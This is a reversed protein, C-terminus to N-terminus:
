DTGGSANIKKIFKGLTPNREIHRLEDYRNGSIYEEHPGLLMRREFIDNGQKDVTQKVYMRGIIDVVGLLVNLPRPSLSPHRLVTTSGDDEETEKEREQATFIIYYSPGTESSALNAFRTVFEGILTGMRGWTRQDPTKPERTFDRDDQEKLVFRMCIEALSTVSDIVFVEYPHDGSRAMWYIPDVDEWRRVRYVDVRDGFRRISARGRESLILLTRLESDCSFRTKGVKNRAYVLIVPKEPADVSEIHRKAKEIESTKKKTGSRKSPVLKNSM